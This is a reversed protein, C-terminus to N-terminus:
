LDLAREHEIVHTRPPPLTTTRGTPVFGHRAYLSQAVENFDGVNLIVRRYGRERAQAVAAEILADGVGRGRAAPDVWVAYIGAESPPGDFSSTVLTMGVPQMAGSDDLTAVLTTSLRGPDLRERWWAEPQDSEEELTAGFADPTDALAALRLARVVQWDDPGAVEVRVDDTPGRGQQAAQDGAQSM